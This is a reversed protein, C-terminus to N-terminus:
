FSKGVYNVLIVNIFKHFEMLDNSFARGSESAMREDFDKKSDFTVECFKSYKHELLINSEVDGALVKTESIDSLYKLIFNNFHAIVKEENTKNLFILLKFM